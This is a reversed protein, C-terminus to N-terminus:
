QNPPAPPAPMSGTGTAVSRSPSQPPRDAARDASTQTDNMGGSNQLPEQPPAPPSNDWQPESPSRHNQYDVANPAGCGCDDAPRPPATYGVYGVQNGCHQHHTTHHYCCDNGRNFWGGGFLRANATSSAGFALGGIALAVFLKGIRRHTM